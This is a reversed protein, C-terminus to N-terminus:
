GVVTIPMAGFTSRPAPVFLGSTIIASISPSPFASITVAFSFVSLMETYRFILADPDNLEPDKAVLTSKVAPFSGSAITTASKSPSPFGSIAAAM